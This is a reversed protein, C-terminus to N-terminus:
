DQSTCETGRPSTPLHARLDALMQDTKTKSGTSRWLRM